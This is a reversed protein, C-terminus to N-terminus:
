KLAENLVTTVDADRHSSGLLVVSYLRGPSGISFLSVSTLKAETTYGNKGGNYASMNLFHTPNIWTHLRISKSKTRTIDFIEPINDQIWQAIISIDLATSVNEPSLGSPDRFYTRYAGISSVWNNMEKIFRGRGYKADYAERISEAADNSSVMLLPYLIEKIKFKEGRRFNGSNGETALGKSTIEIIDNENFLKMAVVATVLKTISAIPLLRDADKEILVNGKDLSRVSYALASIQSRSSDSLASITEGTLIGNEGVEEDVEPAVYTIVRSINDISTADVTHIATSVLSDLAGSMHSLLSQNAVLQIGAIGIYATGVGVIIASLISILFKPSNSKNM